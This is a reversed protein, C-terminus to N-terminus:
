VACIMKLFKCDESHKKHELFANDTIEWNKVGIGCFFCKVTDGIGAYYFGAGALEDPIPNLQKPWNAFSCLRKYYEAYTINYPRWQNCGEHLTGFPTSSPSRDYTPFLGFHPKGAFVSGVPPSTVWGSNANSSSDPLFSPGRM